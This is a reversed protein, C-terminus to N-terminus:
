GQEEFAACSEIAAQMTDRFDEADCEAWFRHEWGTLTGISWLIAVRMTSGERRFLWRYDGVAEHWFCKGHGHTVASAVAQRLDKMASVSDSSTVTAQAGNNAIAGVVRGFLDCNLAVQM